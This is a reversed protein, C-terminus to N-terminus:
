SRIPLVDIIREKADPNRELEAPSPVVSLTISGMSPETSDSQFDGMTRGHVRTLIREVADFGKESLLGKALIRALMPFDPSDAIRQLTAEDSDLLILSLTSVDTKSIKEYGNALATRVVSSVL